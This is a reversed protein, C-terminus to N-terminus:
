KPWCGVLKPRFRHGLTWMPRLKASLPGVHVRPPSRGGLNPLTAGFKPPIPEDSLNLRGWQWIPWGGGLNGFFRQGVCRLMSAGCQGGRHPAAMTWGLVLHRRGVGADFLAPASYLARATHTDRDPCRAQRVARAITAWHGVRRRRQVEARVVEREPTVWSPRQWCRRRPGAWAEGLGGM